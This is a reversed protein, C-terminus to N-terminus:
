QLGLQALVCSTLFEAQEASAAASVPLIVGGQASLTHMNHLQAASFVTECPAILVPRKTALALEAMRAAPALTAGNAILALSSGRAAPVIVADLAFAPLHEDAFSLQAETAYFHKRVAAADNLAIGAQEFARAAADNFAVCVQKGASLLARIVAAGYVVSEPSTLAVGVVNGVAKLSGSVAVNPAAPENSHDIDMWGSPKNMGQELRAAVRRGLQLAKGNPKVVQARLQYLYAPKDYGTKRALEAITGAEKILLEFNEFRIEQVTKM